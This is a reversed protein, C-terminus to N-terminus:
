RARRTAGQERREASPGGSYKQACDQLDALAESIRRTDAAALDAWKRIVIPDRMSQAYRLMARDQRLNYMYGNIIDVKSSCAAPVLIVGGESTTSGPANKSSSGERGSPKPKDVLDKARRLAAEREAPIGKFDTFWRTLRSESGTKEVVELKWQEKAPLERRVVERTRDFIGIMKNFDGAFGSWALTRSSREAKEYVQALVPPLDGRIHAKAGELIARGAGGRATDGVRWERIVRASTEFAARWHSDVKDQKGARWAKINRAYPAHFEILQTLVVNPNKFDGREVAQIVGATTLSYTKAFWYQPDATKINPRGTPGKLSTALSRQEASVAKARALLSPSVASAGRRAPRDAAWALLPVSLVLVGFVARRGVARIRM